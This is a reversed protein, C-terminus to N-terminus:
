VKRGAVAALRPPAATSFKSAVKSAAEQKQEKKGGEGLRAHMFPMLAKAADIRQKPDLEIDNMAALLFAKPDQHALASALDFAPRAPEQDAPPPASKAKKIAEAVKPHRLLRSAAVEAGAKSYGAKIAAKKGNSSDALYAKVFAAQKPTLSM